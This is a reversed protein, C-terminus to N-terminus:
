GNKEKKLVVWGTSSASARVQKNIRSRNDLFEKMSIKNALQLQIVELYRNLFQERAYKYLEIDVGNIKKLAEITKKDESELAPRGTFTMHRENDYVITWSFTAAFLLLSEQYFEQIGFAVMSDLQKKARALLQKDNLKPKLFKDLNDLYIKNNKALKQVDFDATLYRSQYNAFFAARDSDKLLDHMTEKPGILDNPVWNNEDPDQKIHHFQSFARDVPERLITTVLFDSPLQHKLAMSFHGHVLKFNKSIPPEKDAQESQLLESWSHYPFIHRQYYDNEQLHHVLTTGGTKPIHMFYVKKQLLPKLVKRALAKM